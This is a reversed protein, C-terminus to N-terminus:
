NLSINLNFKTSIYIIVVKSNQIRMLTKLFKFLQFNFVDSDNKCPSFVTKINYKKLINKFNVHNERVYPIVIM